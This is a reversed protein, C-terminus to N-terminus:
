APEIGTVREVLLGLDPAALADDSPYRVRADGIEALLTAARVTGAGPCAPSSRRTPM